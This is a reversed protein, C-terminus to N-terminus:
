HITVQPKGDVIGDYTIIRDKFMKWKGAFDSAVLSNEEKSTTITAMYKSTETMSRSYGNGNADDAFAIYTAKGDKGDIGDKGDVAIGAAGPDGKPGQPGVISQGDKGAIGDKGDEGRLEELNNIKENYVQLVKEIEDMVEASISEKYNQLDYATLQNKKLIADVQADRQAVLQDMTVHEEEEYSEKITVKVATNNDKLKKTESDTITGKEYGPTEDSYNEKLTFNSTSIAGTRMLGILIMIILIIVAFVILRHKKIYEKVKEM